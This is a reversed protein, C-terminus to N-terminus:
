EVRANELKRKRPKRGESRGREIEGDEASRIAAQPTTNDWVRDLMIDLKNNHAPERGRELHQAARQHQERPQERDHQELPPQVNVVPQAHRQDHCTGRDDSRGGDNKVAVLPGAHLLREM